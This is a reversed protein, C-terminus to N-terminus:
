RLLVVFVGAGFAYIPAAATLSDIRDLIGGHGPLISGSDKVGVERKLMSEFLDGLVSFIVTAASLLFAWPWLRAPMQNYLLTILVILMSFALGGLVGEISKGPSVLPALKHKGWKKGVFYAASDAGWILAFLFFLSYIGSPQIRIYVISCAAIALVLVGMVGRVATNNWLFALRPYSIVLLSAALWWCAGAALIVGIPLFTCGAIGALVIFLYLLRYRWDTIGMLTSWEWAGGLMLLLVLISFALPTIKFLGFLVLPILIFATILRQKLM